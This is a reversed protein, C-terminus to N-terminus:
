LHTPFDTHTFLILGDTHTLLSPPGTHTLTIPADRHTLLPPASTHTLLSPADTISCRPLILTLSYRHSHATLSCRHTVATEHRWCIFVCMSSDEMAWSWCLLVMANSGDACIWLHVMSHSFWCDLKEILFANWVFSKRFLQLTMSHFLITPLSSWVDKKRLYCLKLVIEWM